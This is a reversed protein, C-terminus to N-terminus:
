AARPVLSKFTAHSVSVSLGDTGTTSSVKADLQNALANVLSTGLGGRGGVGGSNPRGVGNDSVSLKWDTGSMEFSVTVTASEKPEPFAYKLANIVLETVILGLSVADPSVMAGEGALVQLRAPSSEGIMSGAISECLTTLYPGIAIQEGLGSSHLHQQVAAISIVRRHADQLHLRTEESTVSRAKLMLISAIIQLSNVIRHQMEALLMQKQRLLENTQKQLHEKEHEILRRGTVDEFGLLIILRADGANDARRAHLLFIKRGVRPFEHAVEFGEMVSHEPIIRELLLHLAPINWAGDDLSFLPQGVTNEPKIEFSRFFSGSAALIKLDGDLVLLPERVTEVITQAIARVNEIKSFIREDL